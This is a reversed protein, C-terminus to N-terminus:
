QKNRLQKKFSDARKTVMEPAIRAWIQEALFDMQTCFLKPINDEDVPCNHKHESTIATDKNDEDVDRNHQRANKIATDMNLFAKRPDAGGKIGKLDPLLKKLRAPRKEESLPLLEKLYETPSSDIYSYYLWIEFCPNSIIWRYPTNSSTSLLKKLQPRFNDLDTLLFIQDIDDLHYANDDDLSLRRTDEDYHDLWYRYIDNPASGLHPNKNRGSKKGQTPIFNILLRQYERRELPGLYSREREEGGSIVIFLDPQLTETATPTYEPASSQEQMVEPTSSILDEEQEETIALALTSHTDDKTYSLKRMRIFNFVVMILVVSAVM